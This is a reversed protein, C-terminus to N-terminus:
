LLMAIIPAALVLLVAQPSFRSASSTPKSSDTTNIKSATMNMNAMSGNTSSMNTSASHNASTMNGATAGTSPIPTTKGTGNGGTITFFTSFVVGQANNKPVFRIAYKTNAALTVDPKFTLAMAVGPNSVGGLDQAIQLNSPDGSVLDISTEGMSAATPSAPTDIWKIQCDAGVQCVSGSVPFTPSLSANALRTIALVFISLTCIM